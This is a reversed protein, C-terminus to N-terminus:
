GGGKLGARASAPDMLSAYAAALQPHYPKAVLAAKRQRVGPKRTCDVKDDVRRWRRGTRYFEDPVVGGKAEIIKDLEPVIKMIDEAIRDSTPACKMWTSTMCYWPADVYGLNWKARMAHGKPYYMALSFNLTVAADLDAFGHSDLGLFLKPLDGVLKWEDEPPPSGLVVSYHYHIADRRATSPGPGKLNAVREAASTPVARAARGARVLAPLSLTSTGTSSRSAASPRRSVTGTSAGGLWGAVAKKSNETPPPSQTKAYYKAHQSESAFYM